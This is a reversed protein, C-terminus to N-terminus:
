AMTALLVVGLVALCVGYIKALPGARMGLALRAGLYAAPIAGIGYALVVEWSIHGLAAHTITGPIALVASLALSTALATKLPLRLVLVFLPALLFGGSNGLLGGVFGVAIALVAIRVYTPRADAESRTPLPPGAVFRMGILVVLVDTVAILIRGGILPTVLAGVVTAPIAFFAASVLLRRDIFGSGRYAFTASLALPIAVPLPSALAYFAPVGAAHLLPTGVASGGAGFLGAVFGVGAGILTLVWWTVTRARAFSARRARNPNSASNM